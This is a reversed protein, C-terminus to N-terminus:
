ARVGRRHVFDASSIPMLDASAEVTPHLIRMLWKSLSFPRHPPKPAHLRQLLEARNM